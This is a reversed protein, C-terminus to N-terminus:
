HKQAYFDTIKKALVKALKIKSEQTWGAIHPTLIVRDSAILYKWADPLNKSNLMEFSSEEYEVVDLACGKIKGIELYKVLDDTKVVPGRSTNILWIKKKFKLIYEEDFMYRTEETLPVHLSLIDAQIFVEELSVESALSGSFGTKYKDYAIVKADFNKLREAFASGINGYGIIAITKGGIEEGRNEERLWKGERVQKDALRMNNMLSLLMGMAHEAVADRNGEPSNFCKIGKAEAHEVDISEMGSGVRGIFELKAAKDLFKSSLFFRSRIIIGSFDPIIKEIEQIELSAGEICLFGANELDEKLVPHVSDILLVKKM